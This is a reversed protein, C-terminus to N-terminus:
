EDASLHALIARADRLRQLAAELPASVTVKEARPAASLNALLAEVAREAQEVSTRATTLEDFRIPSRHSQHNM